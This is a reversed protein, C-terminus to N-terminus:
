PSRYAIRERLHESLKEEVQKNVSELIAHADRFSSNEIKDIVQRFTACQENMNYGYYTVLSDGMIHDKEVRDIDEKAAELVQRGQNKIEEKSKQLAFLAYQLSLILAKVDLIMRDAMVKSSSM